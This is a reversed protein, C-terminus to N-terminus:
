LMQKREGARIGQLQAIFDDKKGGKVLKLGRRKIESKVDNIKMDAAPPLDLPSFDGLARVPATQRGMSFLGGKKSTLESAFLTGDATAAAIAALAASKFKARAEQAVEADKAQAADAAAAAELDDNSDDFDVNRAARIRAVQLRALFGRVVRQMHTAALWSRLQHVQAQHAQVQDDLFANQETLEGLSDMQKRLSDPLMTSQEHDQAGSADRTHIAALDATVRGGTAEM